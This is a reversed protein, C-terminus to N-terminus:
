PLRSPDFSNTRSISYEWKVIARVAGSPDHAKLWILPVYIKNRIQIRRIYEAQTTAKEEWRFFGTLCSMYLVVIVVSLCLVVPMWVPRSTREANLVVDRHIPENM